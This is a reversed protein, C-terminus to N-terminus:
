FETGIRGVGMILWGIKKSNVKKWWIGSVDLVADGCESWVEIFDETL